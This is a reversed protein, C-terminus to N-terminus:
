ARARRGGAPIVLVIVSLLAPGFAWVCGPLGDLTLATGGAGPLALVASAGVIGLAAAAAVIRSGFVLRFGAVLAVVIVLGAVLGWPPVQGHTFTTILGVVAGILLAFVSSLATGGAGLPEAPLETAATADAEASASSLTNQM